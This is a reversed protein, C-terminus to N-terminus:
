TRLFLNNYNSIIRESTHSLMNWKQASEGYIGLHYQAVKIYEM